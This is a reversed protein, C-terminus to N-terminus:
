LSFFYERGRRIVYSYHYRISYGSSYAISYRQANDIFHCRYSYLQQLYESVVKGKQFRITVHLSMLNSQSYNYLNDCAYYHFLM